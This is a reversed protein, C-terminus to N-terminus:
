PAAAISQTMPLGINELMGSAAIMCASTDTIDRDVPAKFDGRHWATPILIDGYFIRISKKGGGFACNKQICIRWQWETFRGAPAEAGRATKTMVRVRITDRAKGSVHDFCM